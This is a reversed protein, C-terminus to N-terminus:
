FPRKLVKCYAKVVLSPAVTICVDFIHKPMTNELTFSDYFEKLVAISLVIIFTKLFSYKLRKAILTIILGITIHLLPGLTISGYLPYHSLYAFTKRIMINLENLNSIM